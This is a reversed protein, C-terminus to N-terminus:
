TEAPKADIVFACRAFSPQPEGQIAPSSKIKTIAKVFHYV